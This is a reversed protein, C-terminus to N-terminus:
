SGYVQPAPAPRAPGVSPAVLPVPWLRPEPIRPAPFPRLAAREEAGPPPDFHERRLAGRLFRRERLFGGRSPLCHPMPLGLGDPPGLRRFVEAASRGRLGHVQAAVERRLDRDARFGVPRHVRDVRGHVIDVVLPYAAGDVAYWVREPLSTPDGLWREVDDETPPERRHAWEEGMEGEQSLLWAGLGLLVSAAFVLAFLFALAEGLLVRLRRRWGPRKRPPKPRRSSPNPVRAM